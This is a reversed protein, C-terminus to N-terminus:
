RSRNTVKSEWWLKLGPVPMAPDCVALVASAKVTVNCLDPRAAYVQHIDLVEFCLRKKTFAQGAVKEREPEPAAIATQIATSAAEARLEAVMSAALNGTQGAQEAARKARAEEEALRYIEHERIIRDQEALREQETVYGVQLREVRDLQEAIPKCFQDEHKKIDDAAQRYPTRLEKGAARVDNLMKRLASGTAAANANDDATSVRTIARASEVLENRKALAAPETTITVATPPPTNFLKM